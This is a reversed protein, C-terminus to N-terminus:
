KLEKRLRAVPINLQERYKAVTRRAINYGKVILIECLKEDPLPKMKNENQIAEELIKKVEKTSVEEGSDTSLSESFLSKLLITGFQTQIYKSNALRSITSIDLNVIDAVDKLIMPKLKKEEGTLFYDKQLEIITQMTNFLTFQRQKLADIFWHASEIKQKVFQLAERKEQPKMKSHSYEQIMEKYVKSVRLEPSNLKTLQLELEGDNNYLLFDPIIHQISKKGENGSNAPRPNLHLIEDIGLKLQEDTFNFKKQIKDYHKKSFEDMQEEVIKLAINCAQRHSPKDRYNRMLQLWLCEKLDRAGIGPPDFEQIMELVEIVQEESCNLNSNFAMDDVLASIERRLYGDEDINGIIHQAIQYHFDDLIQLGLQEFLNDQYNYSNSIPVEKKEDDASTNKAALKYAPIEDDDIYQSLDFDDRSNEKSEYEPESEEYELDTFNEDDIEKQEEGEELAPNVELEEKIRQELEIAPIQFLKMLQIQQPALKQLMRQHLGQKLM